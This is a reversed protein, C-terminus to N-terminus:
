QGVVCRYRGTPRLVLRVLNLSMLSDLEAPNGPVTDPCGAAVAREAYAKTVWVAVTMPSEWELKEDVGQVVLVKARKNLDYIYLDSAAGTGDWAILLDGKLGLFHQADPHRSAAEGSRFVIDGGISDADCRLAADPVGRLRVYLDSGVQDALDRAVVVYRASAYCTSGPRQHTVLSDFGSAATPVQSAM